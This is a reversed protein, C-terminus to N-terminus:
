GMKSIADLCADLDKMEFNGMHAIRLGNDKFKGRAGVIKIGHESALRAKIEKARAADKCVFGTVTNSEFGKESILPYGAEQLRAQAQERSGSRDFSIFLQRFRVQESVLFSNPNSLYFNRVDDESVNVPTV